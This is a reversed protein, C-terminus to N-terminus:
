KATLFHHWSLQFCFFPVLFFYWWSHSIGFIYLYLHYTNMWIHINTILYIVHWPDRSDCFKHTTEIFPNTSSKCDGTWSGVITLLTYWWVKLGLHDQVWLDGQRLRRSNVAVIGWSRWALIWTLFKQRGAELNPDSALRGIRSQLENWIYDLQCGPIAVVVVLRCDM